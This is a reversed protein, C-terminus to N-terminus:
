GVMTPTGTRMASTRTTLRHPTALLQATAGELQSLAATFTPSRQLEAYENNKIVHYIEARAGEFLDAPCDRPSASRYQSEVAARLTQGINIQHSSGAHVYLFMMRTAVEYRRASSDVNGYRSADLYFLLSELTHRQVAVDKLLELLYPHHLVSSLPLRTVPDNSSSTLKQNGTNADTAGATPHLPAVDLLDQAYPRHFPRLLNISHITHQHSGIISQQKRVQREYGKVETAYKQVTAQLKAVAVGLTNRSLQNRNILLNVLVAATIAALCCCVITIVNVSVTTRKLPGYRQDVCNSAAPCYYKAQTGVFVPLCWEFVVVAVVLLVSAAIRHIRAHFVILVAVICIVTTVVSMVIEMYPQLVFRVNTGTMGYYAFQKSGIIAASLLMGSCVIRRCFRDKLVHVQQRLTMDASNSVDTPTSGTLAATPSEDDSGPLIPDYQLADADAHTSHKVTQPSAGVAQKTDSPGVLSRRSSVSVSHEPASSVTVGAVRNLRRTLPFRSSVVLICCLTCLVAPVVGIVMFPLSLQLKPSQPVILTRVPPQAAPVSVEYSAALLAHPVWIAILALSLATFLSWHNLGKTKRNAEFVTQEVLINTLQGGTLCVFAALIVLPQSISVSLPDGGKLTYMTLPTAPIVSSGGPWLINLQNLSQQLTSANIPLLSNNATITAITPLQGDAQVSFLAQPASAVVRDGNVDFEVFGDIGQFRQAIMFDYLQMGNTPGLLAGLPDAASSANAALLAQIGRLITSMADLMDPATANTGPNDVTLGYNAVADAFTALYSPDNTTPVSNDLLTGFALQSMNLAIVPDAMASGTLWSYGQASPQAGSYGLDYFRNFLYLAQIEDATYILFTKYGTAVAADVAAVIAPTTATLTSDDAVTEIEITQLDINFQATYAELATAFTNGFNDNSYIAAVQTFGFELMAVALDYAEVTVTTITRCFTPYTSKDSLVNSAANMSITPIQYEPLGTLAAAMSAASSCQPGLIAVPPPHMNVLKVATDLGGTQTCQSDYAVLQVHLKNNSGPLDIIGQGETILLAYLMSMLTYTINSQVPDDLLVGITVNTYNYNAPPYPPMPGITEQQGSVLRCSVLLLMCLVLMGLSQRSWGTPQTLLPQAM